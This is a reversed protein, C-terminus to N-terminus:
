MRGWFFEVDADFCDGIWGMSAVLGSEQARRSFPCGGSAHLYGGHPTTSGSVRRFYSGSNRSPATRIARSVPLGIAWTALSRPILGPVKPLQASRSRAARPSVSPPPGTRSSSRSSPPPRYLLRRGLGGPRRRARRVWAGSEIVTPARDAKKSEVPPGRDELVIASVIPPRDAARMGGEDVRHGSPWHLSKM